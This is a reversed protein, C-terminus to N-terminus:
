VPGHRMMKGTENKNKLFDRIEATLGSLERGVGDTDRATVLLEKDVEEDVVDHMAPTVRKGLFEPYCSSLSGQPLNGPPDCSDSLFYARGGARGVFGIGIGM